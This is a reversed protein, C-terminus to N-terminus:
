LMATKLGCCRKSGALVLTIEILPALSMESEMTSIESSKWLALMLKM